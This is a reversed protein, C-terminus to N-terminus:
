KDFSPALNSVTLVKDLHRMQLPASDLLGYMSTMQAMCSTFSQRALRRCPNSPLSHVLRIGLAPDIAASPYCRQVMIQITRRLHQKTAKQQAFQRRKLQVKSLYILFFTLCIAFDAIIKASTSSIQGDGLEMKSNEYFRIELSPLSM